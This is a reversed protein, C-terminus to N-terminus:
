MIGVYLLFHNLLLRLPHSSFFLHAVLFSATTSFSSGDLYHMMRLPIRRTVGVFLDHETSMDADMSEYFEDSLM